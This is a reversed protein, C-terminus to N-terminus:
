EVKRGDGWLLEEAKKIDAVAGIRKNPKDYNRFSIHVNGPDEPFVAAVLHIDLQKGDYSKVARYYINYYTRKEEILTAKVEKAWAKLMSITEALDSKFRSRSFYTRPSDELYTWPRSNFRSVNKDTLNGPQESTWLNRYKEVDKVPPLSLIKERIDNAFAEVREPVLSEWYDRGHWGIKDKPMTHELFWIFFSDQKNLLAKVQRGGFGGTTVPKIQPYKELLDFFYSRGCTNHTPKHPMNMVVTEDSDGCTLFFATEKQALSNKNREV